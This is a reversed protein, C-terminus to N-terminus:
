VEIEAKKIYIKGDEEVFMVLDGEKVGLKSVVEKVLTIKNYTSVKSTGLVKGMNRMTM